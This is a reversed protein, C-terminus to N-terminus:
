YGFHPQGQGLDPSAFPVRLRLDLARVKFAGYICPQRLLRAFHFCDLKTHTYKPGSGISEYINTHSLHM